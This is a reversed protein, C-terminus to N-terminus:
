EGSGLDVCWADLLLENERKEHNRYEHVWLRFENQLRRFFQTELRSGSLANRLESFSRLLAQHEGYLQNLDQQRHPHEYFLEDASKASEELRFQRSLYGQVKDCLTMAWHHEEATLPGDFIELLDDLLLEILSRLHTDSITSPM